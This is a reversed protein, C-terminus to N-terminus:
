ADRRFTFRRHVIFTLGTMWVLFAAQAILVDMGAGEVLLPLVMLNLALSIAYVSWFRALDLLWYGPVRFVVLKHLVFAELVSVLHTVLLVVLYPLHDGALLEIAAFLGYGYATIFAGVAIYRSGAGALNSHRGVTM